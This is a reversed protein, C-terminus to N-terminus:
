VTVKVPVDPVVVAVTPVMAKFTCHFGYASVSPFWIQALLAPVPPPM